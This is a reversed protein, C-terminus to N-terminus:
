NYVCTARTTCTNNKSIYPTKSGWGLALTHPRFAFRDNDEESLSLKIHVAGIARSRQERCGPESVHLRRKMTSSSCVVM